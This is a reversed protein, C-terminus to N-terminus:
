RGKKTLASGVTVLAIVVAACIATVVFALEARAVLDSVMQDLTM